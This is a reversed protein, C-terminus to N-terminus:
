LLGLIFDFDNSDNDEDIIEIPLIQVLKAGVNNKKESFDAKPIILPFTTM